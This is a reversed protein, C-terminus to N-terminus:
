VRVSARRRLWERGRGVVGASFLVAASGLQGCVEALRARRRELAEHLLPAGGWYLLDFLVCRVPCWRAAHRRVRRAGVHAM